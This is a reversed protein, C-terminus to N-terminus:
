SAPTMWSKGGNRTQLGLRGSVNCSRGRTSVLGRCAARRWLPGNKLKTPRRPAPPFQRGKRNNRNKRNLSATRFPKGHPEQPKRARARGEVAVVASVSAAAVNPERAAIAARAAKADFIFGSM